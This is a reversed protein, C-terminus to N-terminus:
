TGEVGRIAHGLCREAVERRVGLAALQTRAMRRMDHLTFPRLGHKVRQLAANLTDRGVHPVRERPDRRRKAFLFESDPGLAKIERLWAVVAPVLPIDLPARTKTRSAPLHWVAGSPTNGDLDFEEWRAGLLEGKRVCLALLLKLALGNEPCFSPTERIKEFLRALEDLSLARNRPREIGGGDLRPSFDAAPNSALMRRRVGFAFIRRTFRLLDNAATPARGKVEDIVRAIDAPTVDVAATRGLKPLLYKDLHRRPVEPHKLGRGTIESRYWEECLERFSGRQRQEAEAARRVSLPDQQKDLLVRAQRAEIRAQALSMDPYHGLTLWHERGAFHYRLTWSAGDRTQKRLYLGDGDSLLLREGARHAREVALATLIARGM